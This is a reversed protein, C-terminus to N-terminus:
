RAPTANAQAIQASPMADAPARGGTETPPNGPRAHQPDVRHLIDPLLQVQRALRDLMEIGSNAPAPPNAGGEMLANLAAIVWAAAPSAEAKRHSPLPDLAIATLRGAIRRLTADAVLVAQLRDRQGRRPEQMVRALSAELNNSSLGAARRARDPDVAPNGDLVASPM